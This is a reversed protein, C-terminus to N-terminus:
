IVKRITEQGHENEVVVYKVGLIALEEQMLRFGENAAHDVSTAEVEVSYSVTYKEPPSTSELLGTESDKSVRTNTYVVIEGMVNTFVKGEPFVGEMVKELEDYYKFQCPQYKKDM